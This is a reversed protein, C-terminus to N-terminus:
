KIYNKRWITLQGGAAAWSLSYITMDIADDTTDLSISAGALLPFANIYVTVTGSNIFLLGSCNARVQTQESTVLESEYKYKM